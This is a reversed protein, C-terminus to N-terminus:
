GPVLHAFLAAHVCREGADSKEPPAEEQYVFSVRGSQGPLVQFDRNRSGLLLGDLVPEAADEDLLVPSGSNHVCADLDTLFGLADASRVTAGGAFKAPLGSPHGIMYVSARPSVAVERRIALPTASPRANLRIVAWDHRTGPVYHTGILEAGSYIESAAFETPVRGAADVRFGFCFRLDKVRGFRALVHGATAVLADGVLVATAVAGRPQQYFRERESLRYSEGYPETRLRVRTQDLTEIQVAEFVAATAAAAKIHAALSLGHVEVRDDLGYITRTTRVRAATPPALAAQSPERPPKAPSGDRRTRVPPSPRLPSPERPSSMTGKTGNAPSETVRSNADAFTSV